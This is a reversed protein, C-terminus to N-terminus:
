AIGGDEHSLGQRARSLRAAITPQLALAHTGCPDSNEHMEGRTDDIAARLDLLYRMVAYRLDLSSPM